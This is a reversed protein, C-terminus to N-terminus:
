EKQQESQTPMTEAPKEGVSPQAAGTTAPAQTETETRRQEERRFVAKLSNSAAYGTYLLAAAIVALGAATWPVREVEVTREQVVTVVKESVVTQTNFVITTATNTVREVATTTITATVTRPKQVSITLSYTGASEGFGTVVIYHSGHEAAIYEVFDTLGTPRISQGVLERRPNLIYIDFDQNPAMRVYVVLVDGPELIAKFFHLEGQGLHFTYTGPGLELASNFGAGPVLEDGYASLIPVLVLVTTLFVIGKM